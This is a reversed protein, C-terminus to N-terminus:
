VRRSRRRRKSGGEEDVILSNLVLSILSIVLAGVIGSWLGDVSFGLDFLDSVLATLLLLLENIM